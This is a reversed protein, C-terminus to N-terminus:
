VMQVSATRVSGIYEDGDVGTQASNYSTRHHGDIISTMNPHTRGVMVRCVGNRALWSWLRALTASSVPSAMPQEYM